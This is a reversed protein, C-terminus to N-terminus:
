FGFQRKYEAFQQDSMGGLYPAPGDPVKGNGASRVAQAVMAMDYTMDQDIPKPVARAEKIVRDKLGQIIQQSQVAIALYQVREQLHPVNPSNRM